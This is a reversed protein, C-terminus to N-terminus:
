IKFYELIIIAKNDTRTQPKKKYLDKSSSHKLTWSSNKNLKLCMIPAHQIKILDRCFIPEKGRHKQMRTWQWHCYTLTHEHTVRHRRKRSIDLTDYTIGLDLGNHGNLVIKSKRASYTKWSHSRSMLPKSLKISCSIYSDRNQGNNM